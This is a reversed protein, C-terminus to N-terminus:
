RQQCGVSECLGLGPGAGPAPNPLFSVPRPLFEFVVLQVAVFSHCYGTGTFIEVHDDYKM